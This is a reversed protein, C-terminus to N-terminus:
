IKAKIPIWSEQNISPNNQSNKDLIEFHPRDDLIYDSNPIWKTYIYEFFSNQNKFDNNSFIAYLGNHINLVQMGKPIIDNSIEEVEKAAWKTFKKAPDFHCIIKIM